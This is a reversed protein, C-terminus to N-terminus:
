HGILSAAETPNRFAHPPKPFGSSRFPLGATMMCDAPVVFHAGGVFVFCPNRQQLECGTTESRRLAVPSDPRPALGNGPRRPSNVSPFEKKM